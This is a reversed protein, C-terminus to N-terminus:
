VKQISNTRLFELLRFLFVYKTGPYVNTIDGTVNLSISTEERTISGTLEEVSINRGTFLPYGFSKEGCLNENITKFTEDVKEQKNKIEGYSIEENQQVNKGLNNLISKETKIKAVETDLQMCEEKVQNEVETMLEDIQKNVEEKKRRLQTLATDAKEAIIEKAHFFINAKADLCRRMRRLEKLLVEKEQEDIDTIEHQRHNTKLCFRCVAKECGAEKCFLDLEKGHEDCQGIEYVKPPSSKRKTQTLIYKNQPFQGDENNAEHEFICEPCTIKNGRFM